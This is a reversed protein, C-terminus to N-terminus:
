EGSPGIFLIKGAEREKLTEKLIKQFDGDMTIPM